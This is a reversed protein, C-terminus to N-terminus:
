VQHKGTMGGVTEGFVWEVGVAEDRGGFLKQFADARAISRTPILSIKHADFRQKWGFTPIVNLAERVGLTSSFTRLQFKDIYDLLSNFKECQSIIDCIRRLTGQGRISLFSEHSSVKVKPAFFGIEKVEDITKPFALGKLSFITNIDRTITRIKKSDLENILSEVNNM